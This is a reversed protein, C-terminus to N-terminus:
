RLTIITVRGLINIVGTGTFSNSKNPASSLPGGWVGSISTSGLKVSVVKQEVGEGLSLKADPALIIESHNNLNKSSTLALTADNNVAIQTGGWTATSALTFTNADITLSGTTASADGSYIIDAIGDEAIHLGAAGTVAFKWNEVEAAYDNATQSVSLVAPTASYLNGSVATKNVNCCRQNFGSMDFLGCIRLPTDLINATHAYLRSTSNLTLYGANSSSKIMGEGYVHYDCYGQSDTMIANCSYVNNSFVYVAHEGDRSTTNLEAALSNYGNGNTGGIIDLQAGGAMRITYNGATTIKGVLVNNGRLVKMFAENCSADKIIDNILTANALELRSSNFLTLLGGTSTCDAFQLAGGRIDIAGPATNSSHIEATGAGQKTLLLASASTIGQTVVLTADAAVDWTQFLAMTFPADITYRAAGTVTINDSNEVGAARVTFDEAANFVMGQTVLNGSTEALTGGQAFTPRLSGDDLIPAATRELWNDTVNMATSTAGTWTADDRTIVKAAVVVSGAGTVWDCNGATFTKGYATQDLAGDVWVEKVALSNAANELHFVGGTARRLVAAGNGAVANDLLELRGQAGVEFESVNGFTCGTTIRLTGNSVVLAGSMTSTGCNTICQCALAESDMAVTLPGDFNYCGVADTTVLLTLRCPTQSSNKIAHCKTYDTNKLYNLTQSYGDMRVADASGYAYGTTVYAGHPLVDDAMCYVTNYGTYIHGFENETSYLYANGGNQVCLETDYEGPNRIAGYYYTHGNLYWKFGMLVDNYFYGTPKATDGTFTNNQGSFDIIGYFKTDSAYVLPIRSSYSNNSNQREIVINYDVDMTSTIILQTDHREPLGVKQAATADYNHNKGIRVWENTTGLGRTTSFSLFGWKVYTGGTYDNDGALVLTGNVGDKCLAGSGTLTGAAFTSSIAPVPAAASGTTLKGVRVVNTGSLELPMELTFGNCETNEFYGTTDVLKVANGALTFATSGKITISACTLGRVDNNITKGEASSLTIECARDGMNPAETAYWNGPTSFKGDGADGTWIYVDAQAVCTVLVFAIAIHKM